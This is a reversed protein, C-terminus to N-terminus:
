TTEAAAKLASECKAAIAYSDTDQVKFRPKVNLALLAAQLAEILQRNEAAAIAEDVEVLVGCMDFYMREIEAGDLATVPLGDEYHMLDTAAELTALAAKLAKLQQNQM